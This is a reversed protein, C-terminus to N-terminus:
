AVTPAKLQIWTLKKSLIYLTATKGIYRVHGHRWFVILFRYFWWKALLLCSTWTKICSQIVVTLLYRLSLIGRTYRKWPSIGNLKSPHWWVQNKFLLWDEPCGGPPSPAASPLTANIFSRHRQCIYGNSFGCSVDNWLGSILKFIPLLVSSLISIQPFTFQSRHKYTWFCDAQSHSIVHKLEVRGGM